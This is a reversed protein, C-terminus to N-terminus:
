APFVPAGAETLDCHGCLGTDEMAGPAGCNACDPPCYDDRNTM